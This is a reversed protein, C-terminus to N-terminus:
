SNQEPSELSMKRMMERRKALDFTIYINKELSTLHKKKPRSQKQTTHRSIKWVM